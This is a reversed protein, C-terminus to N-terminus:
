DSLRFWGAITYGTALVNFATSAGSLTLLKAAGPLSVGYGIKGIIRAPSGYVQLASGLAGLRPGSAEELNFFDVCGTMLSPLNFSLVANGLAAAALEAVAAYGATTLHVQSIQEFYTPDTCDDLRADAAVDVLADCYTAYNARIWTNMALRQIEHGNVDGRQLVTFAIIKDFGATRRAQWYAALDAEWTAPVYHQDNAGIWVLLTAINAAILPDIVTVADTILHAIGAGNAGSNVFNSQNILVMTKTPYSNPSGTTGLTLSDGEFVYISPSYVVTNPPLLLPQERGATAVVHTATRILPQALSYEAIAQRFAEDTLAALYRTPTTVNDGLIQLLRTTLTALTTTTM